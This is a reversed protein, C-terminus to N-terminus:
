KLNSYQTESKRSIDLDNNERIIKGMLYMNLTLLYFIVTPFGLVILVDNKFIMYLFPSFPTIFAYQGFTWIIRGLPIIPCIIGIAMATCFGNIKYRGCLFAIIFLMLTFLSSLLKSITSYKLGTRPFMEWWYANDLLTGASFMIACFTVAVILNILLKKM